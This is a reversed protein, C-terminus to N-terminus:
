IRLDVAGKTSNRFCFLCVVEGGLCFGFVGTRGGRKVIDASMKSTFVGADPLNRGKEKEQGGEGDCIGFYTSMVLEEFDKDLTAVKM